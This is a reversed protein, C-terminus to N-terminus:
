PTAQVLQVRTERLSSRAGLAWLNYGTDPSLALPVPRPPPLSSLPTAARAYITTNMGTGSSAVDLRMRIRLGTEGRGAGGAGGAGSSWSESDSQSAIMPIGAAGDGGGWRRSRGSTERWGAGGAVVRPAIHALGLASKAATSLFFATHAEWHPWM